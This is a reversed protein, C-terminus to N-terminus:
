NLKIAFRNTTTFTVLFCHFEHVSLCNLQVLKSIFFNRISFQTFISSTFFITSFDTFNGTVLAEAVLFLWFDDHNSHDADFEFYTFRSSLEYQSIEYRPWLFIPFSDMKKRKVSLAPFPRHPRPLCSHSLSSSKWRVSISLLLIECKLQLNKM